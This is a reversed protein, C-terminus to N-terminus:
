LLRRLEQNWEDVVVSECFHQQYVAHCHAFMEACATPDRSFRRLQDAVEELNNRSLVWGVGHEVIWDAIASDPSGSFLVPRGVALAGFFKSPIVLGTWEPRLSVMQLDAASLRQQLRAQPAFPVFTVNTDQPSVAARLERERNGRVSFCLKANEGRLARALLLLEEHAHARGFNGSYMMALSVNGFVAQREERDVDLAADPESLAWPVLTAKAANSGYSDLRKRMCAGIDVNLDLVGYASKLLRKIGRVAPNKGNLLGEAVAVEPYLDFCWHALRTGPRLRKWIGATLVSLIPDTGTILVDADRHKGLAALSWAVNMWAANMIRGLTSAQRLRPRWVRRLNVQGWLEERPFRQREDRCGRNCPMAVVEWGREALGRCLGGFHQASVVDDPPLYHYCILAKPM